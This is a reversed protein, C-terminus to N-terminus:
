GELNEHQAHDVHIAHLDSKVLNSVAVTVTEGGLNKSFHFSAMKVHVPNKSNLREPQKAVDSVVKSNTEGGTNSDTKCVKMDHGFKLCSDCILHLSEYEVEYEVGEVLIKKTVLLGLYIQVCARAYRGKEALKTALDVKVPIGVSTAVRLMADLVKIVIDDNYLEALCNKADQIFMISPPWLDGQKRYVVAINDGEQFIIKRKGQHLGEGTRGTIEEASM